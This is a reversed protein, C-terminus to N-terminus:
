DRRRRRRLRDDHVRAQEGPSPGGGRPGAGRPTQWLKPQEGVRAPQRIRSRRGRPQGTAQRAHHQAMIALWSARCQPPIEGADAPPATEGKHYRTIGPQRRRESCANMKAGPTPRTLHPRRVRTMAVPQDGARGVPWGVQPAGRQRSGSEDKKRRDEGGGAMGSRGHKAGGAPRAHGSGRPQRDRRKAAYFPGTDAPQGRRDAHRDPRNARQRSSVTGPSVCHKPFAM